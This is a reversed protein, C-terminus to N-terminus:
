PIPCVRAVSSEVVLRAVASPWPAQHQVTKGTCQWICWTDAASSTRPTLIITIVIARVPRHLIRFVENTMALTGGHAQVLANTIWPQQTGVTSALKTPSLGHNHSSPASQM